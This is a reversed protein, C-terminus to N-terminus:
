VVSKRDTSSSGAVVNRSSWSAESPWMAPGFNFSRSISSAEKPMRIALSVLRRSMPCVTTTFFPVTFTGLGLGSVALVAASPAVVYGAIGVLLVALGAFMLRSGFRPVLYAGAVWSAVALGCSWPVLTLGATLVDAHRTLQVRLVIVLMLGNMVAFFSLSAVLAAPFGRNRFLSFEVLPSSWWRPRAPAKDECLLPAVALVAIGLPVNVLFASRWTLAHTLVGGLVPGCVAALGMVPGITGLAKAREEGDFMARILGFTQPIVLAAAAGQVVRCTILMGASWAVACCASALVFGAVGLRFVQRRGAIDGLRGGTILLLAFPLTYAATFWQIDSDPGPLRAHIVPAAVQTITTDLLNMAEATLLAGLAAWRWRYPTVQYMADGQRDAAWLEM